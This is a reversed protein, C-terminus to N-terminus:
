QWQEAESEAISICSAEFLSSPSESRVGEYLSCSSCGFGSLVFGSSAIGTIDRRDVNASRSSENKVWSSPKDSESGSLSSPYM